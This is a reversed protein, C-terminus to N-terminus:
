SCCRRCTWSRRRSRRRPLSFIPPLVRCRARNPGALAVARVPSNYPAAPRNSPSRGPVTPCRPTIVQPSRPSGIMWHGHAIARDSVPVATGSAVRAPGCRCSTMGGNAPRALRRLVRRWCRCGIGRLWPLCALSDSPVHDPSVDRNSRWAGRVAQRGSVLLPCAADGNWCGPGRVRSRGHNRVVRTPASFTPPAASAAYTMRYCTRWTRPLSPGAQQRRRVGKPYGASPLPVVAM